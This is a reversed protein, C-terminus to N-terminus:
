YAALAMLNFAISLSTNAAVNRAVWDWRKNTSIDDSNPHTILSAKWLMLGNSVDTKIQTKIINKKTQINEMKFFTKELIELLTVYTTGLSFIYLTNGEPDFNSFCDKLNEALNVSNFAFNYFYTTVIDEIYKLLEKKTNELSDHYLSASSMNLLCFIIQNIVGDSTDANFLDLSSALNSPDIMFRQNIVSGGGVIGINQLQYPDKFKHNIAINYVQKNKHEKYRLVNDTKDDVKKYDFDKLRDYADIEKFSNLQKLKAGKNKGKKIKNIKKQSIKVPILVERTATGTYFAEIIDKKEITDEVIKKVESLSPMQLHTAALIENINGHYASANHSKKDSSMSASFLQEGKIIQGPKLEPNKIAFQELQEILLTMLKKVERGNDDKGIIELLTERTQKLVNSVHSASASAYSTSSIYKAKSIKKANGKAHLYIAQAASSLVSAIKQAKSEETKSRVQFIPSGNNNVEADLTFSGSTIKSNHFQIIREYLLQASTSSENLQVINNFFNKKWKASNTQIKELKKLEQKAKEKLDGINEIKNISALIEQCETIAEYQERNIKQIISLAKNYKEEESALNNTQSKVIKAIDTLSYVDDKSPALIYQAYIKRLQEEGIANYIKRQSKIINELRKQALELYEEQLEKNNEILFNIMRDNIRNLQTLAKEEGEETIIVSFGNNMM